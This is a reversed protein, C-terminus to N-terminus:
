GIVKHVLRKVHRVRVQRAKSALGRIGAARFAARADRLYLRTLGHAVDHYFLREYSGDDIEASLGRFRELIEQKAAADPVSGFGSEDLWVPRVELRVLAGSASLGAVVILGEREAACSVYGSVLSGLGYFSFSPQEHTAAIMRYGSIRHSHSGAVIHFGSKALAELLRVDEPDPRNTRLCGAHVVAVCFQAGRRQMERLAQRGREPTATEVGRLNETALDSAAKAAAWFGVRVEGPGHWVFVEQPERMSFGAGLPTMAAREVASRTQQVGAAGFDYIHNNAIGVARAHIADMYGLSAAPAAVIQGLGNLVRPTLSDCDLTAELNAFTTTVDAFYERLGRAHDGWSEDCGMALKGAPLFDGCIAVRAAIPERAASEWLILKALNMPM